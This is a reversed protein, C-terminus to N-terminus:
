RAWRPFSSCPGVVTKVIDVGTKKALKLHIHALINTHTDTGHIHTYHHWQNLTVRVVVAGGSSTSGDAVATMGRDQQCQTTALCRGVHVYCTINPNYFLTWFRYKEESGDCELVIFLVQIDSPHKTQSSINAHRKSLINLHM